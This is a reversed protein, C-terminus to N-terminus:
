GEEPWLTAHKSVTKFWEDIVGLDARPNETPLDEHTRFVVGEGQRLMSVVRYEETEDDFGVVIQCVEDESADDPGTSVRFVMKWIGFIHAFANDPDVVRDNWSTTTCAIGSFHLVL